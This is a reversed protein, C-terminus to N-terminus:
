LEVDFITKYPLFPTPTGTLQGGYDILFNRYVFGAGILGGVGLILWFLRNPQKKARDFENIAILPAVFSMWELLRLGAYSFLALGQFALTPILILITARAKGMIKLPSLLMGVWILSVLILKSFGSFSGTSEYNSYLILKALFYEQRFAMLAVILVFAFVIVGLTRLKGISFRSFLLLMFPLVASYHFLISTMGWFLFARINKRRLAHWGLLLTAMALGARVANMGYQYVLVPFFWLALYLIESKDAKLVLFFLFGIFVIGILRLAIVPSNTIVLFLKSIAVFGPEWGRLLYSESNSKMTYLAIEYVPYTDTGSYRITVIIGLFMFVSFFAIKRSLGLRWFMLSVYNIFWGFIYIM